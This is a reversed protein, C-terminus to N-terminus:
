KIIIEVTIQANKIPLVENQYFLPIIKCELRHSKTSFEEDLVENSSEIIRCKFLEIPIYVQKETPVQIYLTKRNPPKVFRLLQQFNYVQRRHADPIQPFEPLDYPYELWRCQDTGDASPLIICGTVETQNDQWEIILEKVAIFYKKGTLVQPNIDESWPNNMPSTVFDAKSTYSSLHCIPFTWCLKNCEDTHQVAYSHIIKRLKSM